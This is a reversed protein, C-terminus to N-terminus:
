LGSVNTYKVPYMEHLYKVEFMERLNETAIRGDRVANLMMAESTNQFIMPNASRNGPLDQDSVREGPNFFAYITEDKLLHQGMYRGHALTNRLEIFPQNVYEFLRFSHAAPHDPNNDFRTRLEKLKKNFHMRALRGIEPRPDVSDMRCIALALIMELDAGIMLIDGILARIRQPPPTDKLDM